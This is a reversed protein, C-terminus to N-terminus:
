SCLSYMKMFYPVILKYITGGRNPPLISKDHESKKKKHSTSSNNKWVFGFDAWCNREIKKTHHTNKVQHKNQNKHTKLQPSRFINTNSQNRFQTPAIHRQKHALCKKLEAGGLCFIITKNTQISATPTTLTAQLTWHFSDLHASAIQM